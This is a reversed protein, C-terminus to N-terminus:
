VLSGPGADGGKKIHLIKRLEIWYTVALRGPVVGPIRSFIFYKIGSYPFHDRRNDM